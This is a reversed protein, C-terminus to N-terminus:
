DSITLSAGGLVFDGGVDACGVMAPCVIVAPAASGTFAPYDPGALAFRQTLEAGPAFLPALHGLEGDFTATFTVSADGFEAEPVDVALTGDEFHYRCDFSTVPSNPQTTELTCSRTREGCGVVLETRSSGTVGTVDAADAEHQFQMYCDGLEWSTIYLSGPTPEGVLDLTTEVTPTVDDGTTVRLNIECVDHADLTVAATDPGPACADTAVVAEDTTPGGAALTLAVTVILLGISLLRRM